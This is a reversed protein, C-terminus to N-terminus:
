SRECETSPEGPATSTGSALAEDVSAASSSYAGVSAGPSFTQVLLDRLREAVARPMFLQCNPGFAVWIQPGQRSAQQEVKVRATPRVHLSATVFEDVVPPKAAFDAVYLSWDPDTRALTRDESM